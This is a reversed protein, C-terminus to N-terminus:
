RNQNDFNMLFRGPSFPSIDVPSQVGQAWDAALKGSFPGLQLGIAAFATAIFVNEVTPVPGIVPLGDECAPRLGVRIEKIEAGALGPAVRLAEDLVERVGAATPQPNFGVSERTAGVAVRSDPWSVSYHGHFAHTMPWRSTDTGPLSLHIIQGRLPYVPIRLGLQDGFAQSWAGGAIIVGDASITEGDVVVGTVASNEIVLREVSALKITLGEAARRMATTLLRGDVRASSRILLARQVPALPPFLDRAEARTIARIDDATPTGFKEQQASILRRETEFADSEDDDVAVILEGVVEYGTDSPQEGRLQDILQTYYGSCQMAFDFWLRGGGLGLTAFSLIGAGADTARGTDHRDILLTKVGSRALNYAASTGAIGGGIIITDYM